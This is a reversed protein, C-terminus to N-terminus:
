LGATENMYKNKLLLLDTVREKFEKLSSTSEAMWTEHLFRHCANM